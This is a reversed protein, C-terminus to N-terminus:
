KLSMEARTWDLIFLGMSSEKAGFKTNYHDWSGLKLLVTLFIERCTRTLPGMVIIRGKTRGTAIGTLLVSLVQLM